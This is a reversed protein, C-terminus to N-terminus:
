AAQALALLDALPVDALSELIVDAGSLDLQRTLDNPVAVAFMGARKAALVGNPSDEFVITEEPAAGLDEAVLTFLAPDPKTHDVDDATRISEFAALLGLRTLHGHVWSAPSSSGLGVRLGLEKAAELHEIVGPLVPQSELHELYSKRRRIWVAERDITKGTLAELYSHPEFDSAGNGGLILAWKELPLDAGHEQYVEQWSLYDPTETDVILGDFDFILAQM